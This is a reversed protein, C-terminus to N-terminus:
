ERGRNSKFWTGVEDGNIVRSLIGQHSGNAIVMSTGGAIALKAAKLKTIMGGTGLDSGSGGAATEIKKTIKEVFPIIKCDANDNPNSDFLGDIDSMIILLDADIINSVLASLTDNDGFKIEDADVGDNENIEDISVADNENVIPIVGQEILANLTNKANLFRTKHSIDEKTLLVQGIIIGYESFFKEYMHLLLGQGVAAAAQKGTMTKPRTKLGLKGMGAGIAGSTVLIIEFGRNHLDSLQRVLNEIHSLNLLGNPYTLTSTGVKIVLRHVNELYIKRDNM